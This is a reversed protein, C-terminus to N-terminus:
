EGSAGGRPQHEVRGLWLCSWSEHHPTGVAAGCRGRGGRGPRAAARGGRPAPPALLEAPATLSLRWNRLHAPVM